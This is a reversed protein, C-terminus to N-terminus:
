KLLVSPDQTPTKLGLMGTAIKMCEYALDYQDLQSYIDGLKTWIRALTRSEPVNKLATTAQQLHDLAFDSNGFSTYAEAASLHIDAIDIVNSSPILEFAQRFSETADLERGQLAYMSARTSIAAALEALSGTRQFFNEAQDLLEAIYEFNQPCTKLDIWATNIQLAAIARPRNLIEALSLARHTLVSAQTFNGLQEEFTSASWAFMCLQWPTVSEAQEPTLTVLNIATAFDGLEVFANAASARLEMYDDSLSVPDEAFRNSIETFVRTILDQQGTAYSTRCIGNAARIRVIPDIHIQNYVTKYIELAEADLGQREIQFGQLRRVEARESSNTPLMKEMIHGSPSGVEIASTVEKAAEAFEQTLGASNELRSLRELLNRQLKGGATRKGSEILSLYSISILGEALQTM